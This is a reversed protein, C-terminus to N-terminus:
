VFLIGREKKYFADEILQANKKRDEDLIHGYVETGQKIGHPNCVKEMLRYCAQEAIM